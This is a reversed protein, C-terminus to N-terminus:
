LRKRFEEASGLYEEPTDMKRLVELPIARTIDPIEEL